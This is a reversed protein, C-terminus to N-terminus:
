VRMRPEEMTPSRNWTRQRERTEKGRLTDADRSDVISISGGGNIFGYRM